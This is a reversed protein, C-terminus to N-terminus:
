GISQRSSWNQGQPLKQSNLKKKYFVEVEPPLIALQKVLQTALSPIIDLATQNDASKYQCYMYAIGVNQGQSLDTVYDVVTSTLVTKGAGPM